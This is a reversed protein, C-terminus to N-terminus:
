HGKNSLVLIGGKNEIEKPLITLCWVEDKFFSVSSASYSSIFCVRFASQVCGSCVRLVSQVCESCVRFMSQVYETCVRIIHGINSLIEFVDSM